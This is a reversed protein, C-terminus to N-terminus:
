VGLCFFVVMFLWSLIGVDSGLVRVGTLRSLYLVVLACSLSKLIAIRLIKLFGSSFILLELNGHCTIIVITFICFFLFSILLQLPSLGFLM